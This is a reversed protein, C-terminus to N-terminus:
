VLIELISPDRAVFQEKVLQREQVRKLFASGAVCHWSEVERWSEKLRPGEVEVSDAGEDIGERLRECHWAEAVRWSVRTDEVLVM